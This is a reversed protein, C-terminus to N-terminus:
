AARLTRTTWACPGILEALLARATADMADLRTAVVLDSEAHRLWARRAGCTTVEAMALSRAARLLRPDAADPMLECARDLAVAACAPGVKRVLQMRLSWEADARTAALRMCVPFVDGRQAAATYANVEIREPTADMGMGEVAREVQICGGCSKPRSSPEDHRIAYKSVALGAPPGGVLYDLLNGIPDNVDKLM